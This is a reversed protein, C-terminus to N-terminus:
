YFIWNTFKTLKTVQQSLFLSSNQLLLKCWSNQVNSTLQEESNCKM